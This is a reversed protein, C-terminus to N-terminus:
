EEDSDIYKLWEMQREDFSGDDDVWIDLTIVAGNKNSKKVYARLFEKTCICNKQGWGAMHEPWPCDGYFGLTILKHNQAGRKFRAVPIHGFDISEGSIYDGNGWNNEDKGKVGNNFAVIADPNGKRVARKYYDIYEQTYGLHDYMGDFWWGKVGKGYRVAYEELVATWNKVFEETIPVAYDTSGMKNIMEYTDYLGMANGAQEDFHPGDGTYYLYLDIGYKDFEEILEAIVDRESCAEGPKFGTIRDYTANPALMFRSGQMVTIFYYKAGIDSLQKAVKQVDFKAVKNKWDEANADPNKNELSALYHNFVGWKSNYFRDTKHAM